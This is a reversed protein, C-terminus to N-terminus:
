LLKPIVQTTMCGPNETLVDHRGPLKVVSVKFGARRYLEVAKEINAAVPDEDGYVFCVPIDTLSSMVEEPTNAIAMGELLASFLGPTVFLYNKEDNLYNLQNEPKKYLWCAQNNREAKPVKSIYAGFAIKNVLKSVKNLGGNLMGILKVIRSMVKATKPDLWGTGVLVVGATARFDKVYKPTMATRVAFSTMSFGLTYMKLDPYSESVMQCVSLYDKVMVDWSKLCMPEDFCGISKGHGACDYTVVLYGDTLLEEITEQRCDQNEGLGHGIVFGKKDEAIYYNKPIYVNCDIETEGNASKVKHVCVKEYLGECVM